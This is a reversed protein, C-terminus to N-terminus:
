IFSFKMTFPEGETVRSVEQYWKDDEISQKLKNGCMKGMPTINQYQWWVGISYKKWGLSILVVRYFALFRKPFMFSQQSLLLTMNFKVHSYVNIFSFLSFTVLKSTFAHSSYWMYMYAKFHIKRISVFVLIYFLDLISLFIVKKRKNIFLNNIIKM